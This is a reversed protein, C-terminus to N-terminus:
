TFSCKLFLLVCCAGVKIVGCIFVFVYEYVVNDYTLINVDCIYHLRYDTHVTPTHVTHHLSNYIIIELYQSPFVLPWSAALNNALALVSVINYACTHTTNTYIFLHFATLGILLLLFLHAWVISGMGMMNAFHLHCWRKDMTVQEDCTICQM